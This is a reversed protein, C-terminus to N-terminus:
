GWSSSDVSVAAVSNQKKSVFVCKKQQAIRPETEWARLLSGDVDPLTHGAGDVGVFPAAVAILYPDFPLRREKKSASLKTKGAPFVPRAMKPHAVVAHQNKKM